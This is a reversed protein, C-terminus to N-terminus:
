PWKTELVVKRVQQQEMNLTSIVEATINLAQQTFNTLVEVWLMIDTTGLSPVFIAALYDYWPFM